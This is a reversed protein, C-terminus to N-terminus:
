SSSRDRSPLGISGPNFIGGPDVTDKLANLLARTAADRSEM